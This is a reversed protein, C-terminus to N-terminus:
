PRQTITSSINENQCKGKDALCAIFINGLLYPNQKGTFNEVERKEKRSDVKIQLLKNMNVTGKKPSQNM